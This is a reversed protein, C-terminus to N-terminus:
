SIKTFYVDPLKVNHTKLSAQIATTVFKDVKDQFHIM